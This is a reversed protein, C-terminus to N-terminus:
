ELLETSILFGVFIFKCLLSFDQPLPKIKTELGSVAARVHSEGGQSLSNGGSMHGDAAPCPSLSGQCRTGTLPSETGTRLLTVERLTVRHRCCHWSGTLGQSAPSNESKQSLMALLGHFGKNSNSLTAFCSERQQLLSKPADQPATFLLGTSVHQEQTSSPAHNPLPASCGADVMGVPTPCGRGPM